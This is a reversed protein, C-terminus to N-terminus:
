CQRVKNTIKMKIQPFIYKNINKIIVYQYM